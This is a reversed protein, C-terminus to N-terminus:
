DSLDRVELVFVIRRHGEVTRVVVERMGYPRNAPETCAAGRATIETHLASIDDIGLYGFCDYSGLDPPPM